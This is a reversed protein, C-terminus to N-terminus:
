YMTFPLVITVGSENVNWYTEILVRRTTKANVDTGYM